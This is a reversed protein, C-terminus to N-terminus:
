GSSEATAVFLELDLYSSGTCQIAIEDFSTFSAPNTSSPGGGSDTCEFKTSYYMLTSQPLLANYFIQGSSKSLRMTANSTTDLSTVRIYKVNGSMYTGTKSSGGFGLLPTMSGSFVRIIRTSVMNVGAVSYSRTVNHVLGGLDISETTVVNLTASGLVSSM